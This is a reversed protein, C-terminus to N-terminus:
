DFRLHEAIVLRPKKKYECAHQTRKKNNRQIGQDLYTRLHWM